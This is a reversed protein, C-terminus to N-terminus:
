RHNGTAPPRSDGSSPPFLRATNATGATILAPYTRSTIDFARRDLTSDVAETMSVLYLTQTEKAKALRAQVDGYKGTRAGEVDVTVRTASGGEPTIRATFTM